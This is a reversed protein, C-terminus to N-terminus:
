PGGDLDLALSSPIATFSNAVESGTGAVAMGIYPQSPLGATPVATGPHCHSPLPRCNM